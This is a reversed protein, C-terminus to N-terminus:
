KVRTRSAVMERTCLVPQLYLNGGCRFDACFWSLNICVHLGSPFDGIGVTGSFKVLQLGTLAMFASTVWCVKRAPLKVFVADTLLLFM